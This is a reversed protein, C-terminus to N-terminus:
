FAHHEGVAAQPGVQFETIVVHGVDIGAVLHHRHQGHGVHVSEHDLQAVAKGFAAM